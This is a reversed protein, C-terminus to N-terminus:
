IRARFKLESIIARSIDKCSPIGTIENRRAILASKFRAALM